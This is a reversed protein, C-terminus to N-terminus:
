REFKNVSRSKKEVFLSWHARGGGLYAELHHKLLNADGNRNVSNIDLLEAGEFCGKPWLKQPLAVCRHPPVAPLILWQPGDIEELHMMLLVRDCEYDRVATNPDADDSVRALQRYTSQLVGAFFVNLANDVILVYNMSLKLSEVIVHLSVFARDTETMETAESNPFALVFSDVPNHYSTLHKIMMQVSTAHAHYYFVADADCRWLPEGHQDSGFPQTGAFDLVAVWQM